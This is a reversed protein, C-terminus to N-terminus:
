STSPTTQLRIALHVVLGGTGLLQLFASKRHAKRAVAIRGRKLLMLLPRCEIERDLDGLGEVSLGREDLFGDLRKICAFWCLQAHTNPNSNSKRVEDKSINAEFRAALIVRKGGAADTRECIVM